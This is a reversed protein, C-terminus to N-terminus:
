KKDDNVQMTIFRANAITSMSQEPKPKKRREKLLNTKAKVIKREGMEPVAVPFADRKRQKRKPSEGRSVLNKPIEMELSKYVKRLTGPLSNSYSEVLSELFESAEAPILMLLARILRILVKGKEKPLPDTKNPDRSHLSLFIHTKLTLMKTKEELDLFSEKWNFFEPALFSTVSDYGSKVICSCVLKEASESMKSVPTKKCVLNCYSQVSEIRGDFEM